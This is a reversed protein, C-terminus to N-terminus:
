FRKRNEIIINLKTTNGARRLAYPDKSGTPTEGISWFGVLTDIKDAVPSAFLSPKPTEQRTTNSAYLSKKIADCIM